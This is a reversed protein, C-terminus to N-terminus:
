LYSNIKSILDRIRSKIAEKEEDSFGQRGESRSMQAHESRLRKIENDRLDIESRLAAVQRELDQAQSTLIRKEDRLQSILDTALRIREWVPKLVDDPDRSDKLMTLEEAGSLYQNM